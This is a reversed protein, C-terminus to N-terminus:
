KDHGGLEQTHRQKFLEAFQGVSHVGGVLQEIEDFTALMCHDIEVLVKGQHKYLRAAHGLKNLGNIAAVVKVSM